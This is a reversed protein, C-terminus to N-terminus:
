PLMGGFPELLCHNVLALHWPHATVVALSQWRARFLPHIHILHKLLSRKQRSTHDLSRQNLHPVKKLTNVDRVILM